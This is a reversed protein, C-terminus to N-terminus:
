TNHEAFTEITKHHDVIRNKMTSNRRFCDLLERNLRQNLPHRAIERLEYNDPEDLNNHYVRKVKRESVFL